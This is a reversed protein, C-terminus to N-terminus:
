MSEKLLFYLDAFFVVTALTLGAMLQLAFVNSYGSFTYQTAKYGFAFAGGVTVIFNFVSVLQRNMEKVDRGASYYDTKSRDINKVMEEYKKNELQARLKQCRAELEADRPKPKVEPLCLDSGEILEHLYIKKGDSRSLVDYIQKVTRFPIYEESKYLKLERELDSCINQESLLREIEESIRKTKVIEPELNRADM